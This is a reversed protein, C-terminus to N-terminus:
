LFTQRGPSGLGPGRTDKRGAKIFEHVDDPLFRVFKGIKHFPIRREHVLRRVFRPEVALLRAVEDVTLLRDTGHNTEMGTPLRM